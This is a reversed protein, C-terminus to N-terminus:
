LDQLGDFPDKGHEPRNEYAERLEKFITKIMEVNGAINLGFVKM